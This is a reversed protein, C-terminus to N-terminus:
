MGYIFTKHVFISKKNHKSYMRWSNRSCYLDIGKPDKINIRKKQYNFVIVTIRYM